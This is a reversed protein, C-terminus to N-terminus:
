TDLSSVGGSIFVQARVDKEPEDAFGRRCEAGTTACMDLNAPLVIHYATGSQKIFPSEPTCLKRNPLCESKPFL